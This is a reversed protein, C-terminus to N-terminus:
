LSSIMKTIGEPPCERERRERVFMPPTLERSVRKERKELSEQPSIERERERL